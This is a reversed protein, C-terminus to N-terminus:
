MSVDNFGSIIKKSKLLNMFIVEKRKIKKLEPKVALKKAERRNM